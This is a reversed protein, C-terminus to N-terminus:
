VSEKRIIHRAYVAGYLLSGPIFGHAGTIVAFTIWPVQNVLGLWWAARRTRRHGALYMVSAGGLTTAWPLLTELSM